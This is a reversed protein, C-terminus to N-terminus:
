FRELPKGRGKRGQELCTAAVDEAITSQLEFKKNTLHPAYEEVSIIADLM